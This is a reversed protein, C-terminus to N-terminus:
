IDTYQNIKRWIPKNLSSNKNIKKNIPHIESMELTGQARETHEMINMIAGLRIDTAWILM